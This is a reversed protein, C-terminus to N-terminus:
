KRKEEIKVISLKECIKDYCDKKETTSYRAEFGKLIEAAIDMECRKVLVDLEGERNPLRIMSQKVDIRWRLSSSLLFVKWNKKREGVKEKLSEEMKGLGCSGEGGVHVFIHVCDTDAAYDYNTNVSKIAAAVKFCMIKVDEDSEANKPKVDSSIILLYSGGMEKYRITKAFDRKLEQFGSQPYRSFEEEDRAIFVYYKM